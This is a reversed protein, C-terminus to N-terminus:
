LGRLPFRFSARNESPLATRTFTGAGKAIEWVRVCRSRPPHYGGGQIIPTLHCARLDQTSGCDVCRYADRELVAQRFHHQAARNRNHWTPMLSSRGAPNKGGPARRALRSRQAQPLRHTVERQARGPGAHPARYTVVAGVRAMAGIAVM